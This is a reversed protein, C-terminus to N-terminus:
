FTRKSKCRDYCRSRRRKNWDWGWIKPFSNLCGRECTYVDCQSWCNQQFAEACGIACTNLRVGSHNKSLVEKQVGGRLLGALQQQVVPRRVPVRRCAVFLGIQDPRRAGKGGGIGCAGLARLQGQACGGFRGGSATWLIIALLALPWIGASPRWIKSRRM